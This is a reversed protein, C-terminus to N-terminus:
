FHLGSGRWQKVGCGKGAQRRPPLRRMPGRERCWRCATPGTPNVNLVVNTIGCVAAAFIPWNISILLNLALDTVGQVVFTVV